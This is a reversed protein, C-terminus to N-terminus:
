EMSDRRPVLGTHYGDNESDFELWEPDPGYRHCSMCSFGSEEDESISGEENCHPCHKPIILSLMM